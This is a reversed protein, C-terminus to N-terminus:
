GQATAWASLAERMLEHDSAQTPSDALVMHQGLWAAYEVRALGLSVERPAQRYRTALTLVRRHDVADCARRADEHTPQWARIASEVPWRVVRSLIDIPDKSESAMSAELLGDTQRQEWYAILALHLEPVNAFHHYFAGKTQGMHACVRALTLRTHGQRELVDLAGELWREKPTTPM